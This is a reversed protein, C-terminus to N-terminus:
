ENVVQLETIGLLKFVLGSIVVRGDQKGIRIDHMAHHCSNCLTMLGDLDCSEEEAKTLHFIHHASLRCDSAGCARCKGGDREITAKSAAKWAATRLRKAFPRKNKEAHRRQMVRNQCRQSCFRQRHAARLTPTYIAGCEECSHPEILALNKTRGAHRLRDMRAGNCKASCTLAHPHHADTSFRVGCIVCQKDLDPPPALSKRRNYARANDARTRCRKSCYRHAGKGRNILSADFTEGCIACVTPKPDLHDRM